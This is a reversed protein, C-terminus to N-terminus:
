GGSLLFVDPIRWKVVTVIFIRGIVEKVVLFPCFMWLFANISRDWKKTLYLGFLGGAKKDMCPRSVVAPPCMDRVNVMYSIAHWRWQTSPRDDLAVTQSFMWFVQYYLKDFRSLLNSASVQMGQRYCSWTQHASTWLLYVNLMTLSQHVTIIAHSTSCHLLCSFGPESRRKVPAFWHDVSDCVVSRLPPPPPGSNNLM